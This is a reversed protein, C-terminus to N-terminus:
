YWMSVVYLSGLDVTWKLEFLKQNFGIKRGFQCKQETMELSKRFFSRSIKYILRIKLVMM